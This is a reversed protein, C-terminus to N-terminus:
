IKNSLLLMTDFVHDSMSNVRYQTIDIYFIHCLQVDKVPNNPKYINIKKAIIYAYTLTYNEFIM